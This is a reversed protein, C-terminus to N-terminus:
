RERRSPLASMARTAPPVRYLPAFLEKTRAFTKIVLSLSM